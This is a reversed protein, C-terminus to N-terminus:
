QSQSHDGPDPCGDDDKYGDYDEALITCIDNIDPLGDRDNDLEPCGDQDRFGDLDEAETPCLDDMDDVGDGDQDEDPCGDYDYRGDYDESALPCEDDEDSVGDDDNDPDACGDGDRYGDIDEVQDNCLDVSNPVGDLDDDGAPDVSLYNTGIVIRPTPSGYGSMLGIGAAVTVDVMGGMTRMRYRVGTQLELGNRTAADSVTGLGFPHAAATHGSMALLVSWPSRALRGGHTYAYGLSYTIEDDVRLNLVRMAKTRLRYGVNVAVMHRGLSRSVALYGAYMAAPQGALSTEDGTPLYVDAGVAFSVGHREQYLIQLKSGFSIDGLRFSSLGQKGAAARLVDNDMGRQLVVLPVDAYFAVRRYSLGGSFHVDTRFDVLSGGTVGNDAITTGLPRYSSDTWVGWTM